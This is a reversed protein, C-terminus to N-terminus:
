YTSQKRLDNLEDTSLEDINLLSSEEFQMGAESFHHVAAKPVVISDGGALAYPMGHLSATGLLDIAAYIREDDDFTLVSIEENRYASLFPRWSHEGNSQEMAGNTNM